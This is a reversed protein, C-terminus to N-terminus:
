NITITVTFSGHNDGGFGWADYGSRDCFVAGDNFGLFLKGSGNTTNSIPVTSQFSSGVFFGKGDLSSSNTINGILSHRAVASSTVVYGCGGWPQPKGDPGTAHEPTHPDAFIVSGSATITITDGSSVTIGTDTWPQTSPVSITVTIPTQGQVTISGTRTGSIQSSSATVTYVQDSFTSNAPLSASADWCRSIYPPDDGSHDAVACISGTLTQSFSQGTVTFTVQTVTTGWDQTAISVTSAGGSASLTSPNSSVSTNEWATWATQGQVTISGTRTGSIQSSSATVTYVQDSFTSNAPLSVSADWCRSIYPPDDGSHDAVACISGTLTQSFSQGTVTFTVQTVTTGWDQTAISVTSAGGSASLTSPNSSVSTNEWATWPPNEVSVSATGDISESNATIIATGEAVGTVLGSSSVTAVANNNSSWTVSRGSLENGLADRPTATLQATSGQTVSTTSPTVDVSAVPVLTVTITASGTKGESTASITATGSSVGTVLGTGSVTAVANNSSSWIVTRGSLVVGSADRTTATLQTTGGEQISTSSPSVEVSAVPVLTVTVTATDSVGESTATIIATGEGVGTVLALGPVLGTGSVTAVANNSSSWIVSRGSLVVGSADTLTASLQTTAGELMSTSSPSVEVSAVSVVGGNPILSAITSHDQIALPLDTAAYVLDGAIITFAVIQGQDGGALDSVELFWPQAQIPPLYQAAESLDVDLTQDNTGGGSRNHVTQAWTPAQPEGVGLRVVLDGRYTHQIEIHAASLSVVTVAVIATDNIGESTATITATGEAVGTVLGMGSVTAVFTNSSSWTVTRGSLVNGSADRPTATLQTTWSELISASSPSVQVSVVSVVGGNPILSAITSHDQIALPLDTAAYVLDGAIITFAVIQGQDGGALDSVELFWPQAQIPPLYQAAESLDVDLTLDNTGGGSRNHVTESWTPNDPDGVGLRVVLDGRYTHQIEIHAASLSAVTVAVIATDSIGESTATITATGEAVGTVLGTGSVTAVFTNGSSWTVTRGSLANGLADTPTASLQTTWSELISASSPNVQVSVVPVTERPYSVLLSKFYDERARYYRLWESYTGRTLFDRFRTIGLGFAESMYGCFAVPAYELLEDYARGMRPVLRLSEFVGATLAADQVMHEQEVLDIIIEVTFGFVWAGPHGASLLTTALSVSGRAIDLQDDRIAVTLRKWYQPENMLELSDRAASLAEQWAPDEVALEGLTDLRRSAADTALAQNVLTAVHLDVLTVTPEVLKLGIALNKFISNSAINDANDALRQLVGILNNSTSLGQIAQNSASALQIADIVASAADAAVGAEELAVAAESTIFSEPAFPRTVM